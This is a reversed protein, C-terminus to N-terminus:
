IIVQFPKFLLTNPFLKAGMVRLLLGGVGFPVLKQTPVTIANAISAGQPLLVMLPEGLVNKSAFDWLLSDQGIDFFGKYRKSDAGAGASDFRSQPGDHYGNFQFHDSSVANHIAVTSKYSVPFSLDAESFHGQFPQGFRVTMSRANHKFDIVLSGDDIRCSQSAFVLLYLMQECYPSLAWEKFHEYLKEKQKEGQAQVIPDYLAHSEDATVTEVAADSKVALQSKDPIKVYYKIRSLLESLELKFIQRFEPEVKSILLRFDRRLEAIAESPWEQNLFELQMEDAGEALYAFDSIHAVIRHLFDEVDANELRDKTDELEERIEEVGRKFENLESQFQAM